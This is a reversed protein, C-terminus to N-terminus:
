TGSSWVRGVIEGGVRQPMTHREITRGDVLEVVDKTTIARDQGTIEAERHRYEDADAMRGAVHEIVGKHDASDIM